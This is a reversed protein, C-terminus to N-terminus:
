ASGRAAFLAVEGDIGKFSSSGAESWDFGDGAADRLAADALLRHRPAVATIRAALNVPRGYLDGARRLAAGAAAGARLPPLLDDRDAADILKLSTEVLAPADESALMVEDGITKVLRVPPVVVEGAIDGFRGAVDGLQTIDLGEALSTFGVMDAFCVAVPRSGPIFGREREVQSIAERRVLQVLHLQMPGTLMAGIEPMLANALDILRLSVESETEGPELLHDAFTALTAEALKAAADGVMRTLEILRQEPLGSDLLYKIGAFAEIAADNAVPEDEDVPSMGIARWDADIYSRPVGTRESVEQMTYVRDALLMKEVPLLVLRDDAIAERLEDVSCGEAHLRDLLERRGAREKDTKLGELLGEAEWDRSM